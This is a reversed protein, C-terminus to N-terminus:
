GEPLPTKRAWAPKQPARTANKYGLCTITFQAHDFRHAYGAQEAESLTQEMAEVMFGNIEDITGMEEAQLDVCEDQDDHRFVIRVEIRWRLRQRHVLWHQHRKFITEAYPRVTPNTHGFEGDMPASSYSLPDTDRWRVWLGDLLRSARKIPRSKSM